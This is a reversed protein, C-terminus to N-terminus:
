RASYATQVTAPSRLILAILESQRSTETKRFISKLQARATHTTIGAINAADALSRGERLLGTLRGESVTLGYLRQLLQPSSDVIAEPDTVFVIVAARQTSSGSVNLPSVLASLPRRLSPRPLRMAGGPHAPKGLAVKASEAILMALRGSTGADAACLRDRVLHLGDRRDLIAQASRNVVVVRGQHDILIAGVPVRDLTNAIATARTNAEQLRRQVQLARQLHPILNTIMELEDQCYPGRRRSRLTSLNFTWSDERLIVGGAVHFLDQPRLWDEFYESRLVESESCIMEGAVVRGPERLLQKNRTMYVNQSAYHEVYSRQFTPDFNAAWAIHGHDGSLDQGHLSTLGGHSEEAFRELFTTWQQTDDLASYILEVLETVHV